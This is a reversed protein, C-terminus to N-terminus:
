AEKVFVVVSTSDGVSQCLLYAWSYSGGQKQLTCLRMTESASKSMVSWGHMTMEQICTDFTEEIGGNCSVGVVGNRCAVESPSLANPDFCERVFVDPVFGRGDVVGGASAFVREVLQDDHSASDEKHQADSLVDQLVYTGTTVGSVVHNAASFASESAPSAFLAILAFGAILIVSAKCARKAQASM